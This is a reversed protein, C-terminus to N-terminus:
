RYRRRWASAVLPALDVFLRIILMFVVISVIVFSTIYVGNVINEYGTGESVRLILGFSLPILMLGTMMSLRRFVEKLMSPLVSYRYGQTALWLFGVTLGLMLFVLAVSPEDM